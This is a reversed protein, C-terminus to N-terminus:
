ILFYELTILGRCIKILGEIDLRNKAFDRAQGWLNEKDTQAMKEIPIIKNQRLLIKYGLEMITKTCECTVLCEMWAVNDKQFTEAEKRALDLFPSNKTM